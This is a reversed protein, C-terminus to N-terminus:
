KIKTVLTRLPQDSADVPVLYQALGCAM